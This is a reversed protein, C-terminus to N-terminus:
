NEQQNSAPLVAWQRAIGGGQQSSRPMPVIMLCSGLLVFSKMGRSETTFKLSHDPRHNEGGAVNIVESIQCQILLLVPKDVASGQRKQDTTQHKAPQKNVAQFRTLFQGEPRGDGHAQDVQDGRGFNNQVDLLGPFWPSCRWCLFGRFSTRETIDFVKRSMPLDFPYGHEAFPLSLCYRGLM